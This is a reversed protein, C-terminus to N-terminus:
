QAGLSLVEILEKDTLVIDSEKGVGCPIKNFIENILEKINSTGNKTNKIDEYKLNSALLRVGCNIDFGIGGPTIIGTESDFTAVGGIPFGYGQHMDSMAIAKKQIGPLGAVNKIQRLASDKKMADFLKDSAYIIAPVLMNDQKPIMYEHDNVKEFKIEQM